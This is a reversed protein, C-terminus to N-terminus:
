FFTSLFLFPKLRKLFLLRKLSPTSINQHIYAFPPLSPCFYEKLNFTRELGQVGEKKGEWM